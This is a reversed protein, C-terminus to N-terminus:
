DDPNPIFHNGCAPCVVEKPKTDGGEDDEMGDLKPKLYGNLDEVTWGNKWARELVQLRKKQDQVKLVAFHHSWSLKHKYPRGERTNPFATSVRAAMLLREPSRQMADIFQQIVGSWDGRSEAYVIMDGIHWNGSNVTARLSLFAMGFDELSPKGTVKLGGHKFDFGGQKWLSTNQQKAPVLVPRKPTEVIPVLAKIQDPTAEGVHEAEAM